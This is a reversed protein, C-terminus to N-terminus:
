FDNNAQFDTPDGSASALVGHAISHATVTPTISRVNVGAPDLDYGLLLGADLVTQGAPQEPGGNLSCHVHNAVGVLTYTVEVTNLAADVLVVAVDEISVPSATQEPITVTIEAAQRNEAKFIFDETADGGDPENRLFEVPIPDTTDFSETPTGTGMGGTVLDTPDVIRSLAPTSKSFATISNLGQPLPDIAQLEGLYSPSTPDDDPDPVWRAGLGPSGEFPFLLTGAQLLKETGVPDYGYMQYGIASAGGPVVAVDASYPFSDDEAYESWEGGSGVRTRFLMRTIQLQTDKTELTLSGVFGIRQSHEAVSPLVYHPEVRSRTLYVSTSGADGTVDPDEWGPYGVVRLTVQEWQRLVVPLTGTLVAADFDMSGTLVEPPDTDKDHVEYLVRVGATNSLPEWQVVPKGYDLSASDTEIDVTCHRMLAKDDLELSMPESWASSRAGDAVGRVRAWFVQAPWLRPLTRADGDEPLEGVTRWEGSNAEPEGEGLAYQVQGRGNEPIDEVSIVVSGDAQEELDTITPQDIPQDYPGADVCTFGRDITRSRDISIVQLLRNMGRTRTAYNPLSSWAGIVWMGELIADIDDNRIHRSEVVQAGNTYRRLMGDGFAASVLQATDHTPADTFATDESVLARLTVPELVIPITGHRRQSDESLRNREITAKQVVPEALQPLNTPVIERDYKTIVQNVINEPGHGWNPRGITNSDDLQPLEVSEDPVDFSLPYVKGDRIAPASRMPQYVNKQFWERGDDAPETIRALGFPTELIFAAMRDPDYRVPVMTDEITYDGDYGKQLISGFREELYLPVDDRPPLNSLVRVYVPDNNEPLNGSDPDSLLIGVVWHGDQGNIRKRETVFVIQPNQTFGSYVRMPGVRTYTGEEGTPSWEVVVNGFEITATGLFGGADVVTPAGLEALLKYYDDTLIDVGGPQFGIVGVGSVETERFTGRIGPIRPLIPDGVRVYGDVDDYATQWGMGEPPGVRPWVCTYTPKTFLKLGRERERADKVIGLYTTLLELSLGAGVGDFVVEYEGNANQQRVVVRVGNYATDGGPTSALYTAVGSDQDGPILPVDVLRFTLSGIASGGGQFDITSTGFNEIFKLYPRPHGPSTGFTSEVIAGEEDVTGYGDIPLSDDDIRFITLDQHRIATM